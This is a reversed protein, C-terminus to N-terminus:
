AAQRVAQLPPRDAWLPFLRAFEGAHPTLWTPGRRQRIWELASLGAAGAALRNLGDADVLLLGEFGVLQRWREREAPELPDPGIGPGILVADLRELWAEGLDGLRTLGDSRFLM